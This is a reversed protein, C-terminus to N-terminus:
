PKKTFNEPFVGMCSTSGTGEWASRAIGMQWGDDQEEPDPFEVVYIIDGKGFTLEDEDAGQYPYLAQVTYLYHPPLIVNEDSKEDEKVPSKVENQKPSPTIVDDIEPVTDYLPSVGNVQSPEVPIEDKSPKPAGTDKDLTKSKNKTREMGQPKQAEVQSDPLTMTRPRAQPTADVSGSTSSSARDHSFERVKIRPSPRPKDEVHKYGEIDPQAQGHQSGEDEGPVETYQNKVEDGHDHGNTIETQQGVQINVYQHSSADKDSRNSSSRKRKGSEDHKSSRHSSNQKHPSSSGSHRRDGSSRESHGRSRQGTVEDAPLTAPAPVKPSTENRIPSHLRQIRYEGNDFADRVNTTVHNLKTRVDCLEEFFSKEANAINSIIGTCLTVRSDYLDPLDDHLQSNLTEYTDHAQTVHDQARTLKSEELKKAGQLSALARRSADFDVLKRGRKNVKVKMDNCQTLHDQLVTIVENNLRAHLDTYLLDTTKALTGLMDKGMWDDEYIEGLSAYFDGAAMKMATISQLYRKMDHQFKSFQAQQKTVLHVYNDIIEDKTEDGRGLTRLMKERGRFALKTVNRKLRASNEKRSAATDSM